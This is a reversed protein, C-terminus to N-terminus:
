PLRVKTLPPLNKDDSSTAEETSFWPVDKSVWASTWGEMVELVCILDDGDRLHEHIALRLAAPSTTYGVCSSLFTPLAPIDVCGSDVRMSDGSSSVTRGDRHHSIVSKLTSIVDSEPIDLVHELALQISEQSHTVM